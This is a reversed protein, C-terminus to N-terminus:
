PTARETANGLPGTFGRLPHRPATGHLIAFGFIASLHSSTPLRIGQPLHCSSAPQSADQEVHVALYPSSTRHGPLLPVREM